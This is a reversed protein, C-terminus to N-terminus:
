CNNVNKYKNEHRLGIVFAGCRKLKITIMRMLM